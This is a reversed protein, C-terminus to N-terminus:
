ARKVEVSDALGDVEIYFRSGKQVVRANPSYAYHYHYHYQAQRWESGTQFRFLTDRNRFGKFSGRLRGEAAVIEDTAQDYRRVM